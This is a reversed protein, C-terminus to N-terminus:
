DQRQSALSLMGASVAGQIEGGKEQEAIISAPQDDDAASPAGASQGNAGPAQAVAARLTEAPATPFIEDEGLPQGAERQGSMHERGLGALLHGRQQQVAAADASGELPLHPLAGPKLELGPDRTALQGNSMPVEPMVPSAAPRVVEVDRGGAVQTISTAPRDALPIRSSAPTEVTSPAGPHRPRQPPNAALRQHEGAAQREVVGSVSGLSSLLHGPPLGGVRALGAAPEVRSVDPITPPPQVEIPNGPETGGGSTEAESGSRGAEEALEAQADQAVLEREGAPEPQAGVPPADAAVDLEALEEDTEGAHPAASTDESAPAEGAASSAGDAGTVGPHPEVAVAEQTPPEPARVPEPKHSSAILGAVAANGAMAQLGLLMRPHLVAPPANALEAVPLSAEERQSEARAPAKDETEHEVTTTRV